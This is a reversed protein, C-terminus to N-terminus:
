LNSTPPSFCSPYLYLIRPEFHRMRVRSPSVVRYEAKKGERELIRTVLKVILNKAKGFMKIVQWRYNLYRHVFRNRLKAFRSLHDQEEESYGLVKASKRLADSSSDVGIGEGALITGDVEIPVAGINEVTRDM